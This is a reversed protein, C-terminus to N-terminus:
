STAKQATKISAKYARWTNKITARIEPISLDKRIFGSAGLRICDEVTEKDVLSTLMIVFANPIKKRIEALTEKGSKKPMNIDLLLMNPKLAHFQKVTEVGDAAEGVIDCNMTKLVSTIFKRVHAEDEAVMVRIKKPCENAPM